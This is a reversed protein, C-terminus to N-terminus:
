VILNSKSNVLIRFIELSDAINEDKKNAIEDNYLTKQYLEHFALYMAKLMKKQDELFKTHDTIVANGVVELIGIYVEIRIINGVLLKSQMNVIKSYDEKGYWDTCM